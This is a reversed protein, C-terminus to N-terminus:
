EGLVAETDFIMANIRDALAKVKEVAELIGITHESTATVSGIVDEAVRVLQESQDLFGQVITNIGEIARGVREDNTQADAVSNLSTVSLDKINGAVVAFSKGAAGARAAEISANVALLKITDAINEVNETMKRYNNTAENIESLGSAIKRNRESLELISSNVTQMGKVGEASRQAIDSGGSRVDAINESLEEFVSALERTMSLVHNNISEVKAREQEVVDMLYMRCNERVNIGRAIAKAMDACTDFGCAHCNFSRQAETKKHMALYASEIEADSPRYKNNSSKYTRTFDELKFRKDFSAFQKDKGLQKVSKRATASSVVRKHMISSIKFPKFEGGVGPGENCGFECNLVDFVQPLDAADAQIYENLEPYVKGVGESNVVDLDPAHALLTTKLGGPKPYIVGDIASEGDYIPKKPTIGALSIHNQEMYEKLHRLTVNYSVLGTAAFEDGKAVCPSLAAIKDSVGLYKRMYVATCLMPSHVPSLNDLLKPRQTLAYNVIAACPQSILKKGPNKALYRLHAWTCIDAGLSVDYIAKVGLQRLWQLAKAYDEGFTNRIAPAVILSIREGKSLASFFAETDDEYARAGHTCAAICSGCKICKTSDISIVTRSLTESFSAINADKAPCVKICANCGVCSELNITIESM